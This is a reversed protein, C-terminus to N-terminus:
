KKEGLIARRVREYYDPKRAFFENRKLEADWENLLTELERALNIRASDYGAYHEVISLDSVMPRQIFKRWQEVLSRIPKPASM